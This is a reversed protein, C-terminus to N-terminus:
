YSFCSLNFYYYNKTGEKWGKGGVKKIYPFLV